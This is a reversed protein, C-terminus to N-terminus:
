FTSTETTRSNHPQYKNRMTSNSETSVGTYDSTTLGFLKAWLDWVQSNFTFALFIFVGQLSTMIIFLYWLFPLNLASAVFGITWTLGLVVFVKIYILLDRWQGKIKRVRQSQRTQICISSTVHIFFVLNMLLCIAVPCGFAILNVTPGGIWCGGISGYTIGHKDGNTLLLILLILCITFPGILCLSLYILIKKRSPNKGRTTQNRLSFTQVLTFGLVTSSSFATLWFFHGLGSVISCLVPSTAAPGALLLFLQALLLFGCLTMIVINAIRTRLTPFLCYSLFSFGLALISLSIGITSLITQLSSYTPLFIFTQEGTEKLFNCVHISGNNYQIYMEPTFRVSTNYIYVLVDSENSEAKFDSAEMMIFPCTTKQDQVLQCRQVEIEERTSENPDVAFEVNHRFKLENLTVFEATEEFFVNTSSENLSWLSSNMWTPDCELTSISSNFACQATVRLVIVDRCFSQGFSQDGTVSFPSIIKRFVETSALSTKYEYITTEKLSYCSNEFLDTPSILSEPLCDTVNKFYEQCPNILQSELTINISFHDCPSTDNKFVISQTEVCNRDILVYGNPCSMLICESAIPDFVEGVDCEVYTTEIEDDGSIISIGGNQGGFNFTISIPVLNPSAVSPCDPLGTNKDIPCPISPTPIRSTKCIERLNINVNQSYYFCNLCEKNKYSNGDSTAIPASIMSCNNIVDDDTVYENCSEIVDDNVAHCPIISVQYHPHNTPPLFSVVECKEKLFLVKETTTLATKSKFTNSDCKKATFSWATLNSQEQNHCIACYINRFTIGDPSVMPISSLNDELRGVVIETDEDTVDCRNPGAWSEPCKSVMWYRKKTIVDRVCQYQEVYPQMVESVFHDADNELYCNKSHEDFNYCCDRFISCAPHCSCRDSAELYSDCESRCEFDNRCYRGELTENDGAHVMATVQLVCLITVTKMIWLFKDKFQAMM